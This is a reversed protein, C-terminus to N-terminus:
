ETFRGTKKLFRILVYLLSISGIFLSLLCNAKEADGGTLEPFHWTPWKAFLILIIGLLWIYQTTHEKLVWRKWNFEMSQMTKGFGKLNPWWRNVDKCYNDFGIGFKGRLFNEEALVIAQYIFLFVPIMIGVYFLSNALIGVGLLMLINGVYLPNRCHKFIGETVLGEAYPKGEKGGRVIYALGITLGRTLQGLCTIFLGIIVPWLYYSDGFQEKSFLPASPIFLAGYFM